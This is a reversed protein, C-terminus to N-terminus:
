RGEKYFLWDNLEGAILPFAVWASLWGLGTEVTFASGVLLLHVVIHALRSNYGCM